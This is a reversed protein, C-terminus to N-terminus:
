DTGRLVSDVAELVIDLGQWVRLSWGTGAGAEKQVRVQM